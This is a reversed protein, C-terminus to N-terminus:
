VRVIEILPGCWCCEEQSEFCCMGELIGVNVDGRWPERLLMGECVDRVDWVYVLWISVWRRVLTWVGADRMFSTGVTLGM